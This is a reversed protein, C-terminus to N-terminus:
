TLYVSQLGREVIHEQPKNPDRYHVTWRRQRDLGKCQITFVDWTLPIPLYASGGPGITTPEAFRVPQDKEEFGGQRYLVQFAIGPGRNYVKYNKMGQRDDAEAVLLPALSQEIQAALLKNQKRAVAAQRRAARAQTESAVAQRNVARLTIVLVLISFASLLVAAIAALSQLAGANDNLWYFFTDM